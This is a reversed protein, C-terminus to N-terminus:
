LLNYFPLWLFAIIMHNWKCSVSLAILNMFLFYFPPQRPSWSSIHLIKNLSQFKLKPLQFPKYISLPLTQMVLLHWKLIILIIFKTVYTKSLWTWSKTSGVSQLMGLKGKKIEWLRSLTMSESNTIRDTEDETTGKEEQRWDWFWPRKWHTVRQILHDFYKLKLKLM